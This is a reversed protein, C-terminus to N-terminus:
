CRVGSSKRYEKVAQDVLAEVEEDTNLGLRQRNDAGERELRKIWEQTLYRKMAVTVLSMWLRVRLGLQLTWQRGSTM